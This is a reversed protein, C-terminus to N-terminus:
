ATAALEQPKDFHVAVHQTSGQGLSRVVTAPGMDNEHLLAQQKTWAVGVNLRQGPVFLSTRDVELLAGTASLDRTRAPFYKGTHDCRVKAPRDLQFRVAHRREQRIM